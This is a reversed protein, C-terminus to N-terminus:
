LTEKHSFQWRCLQLANMPRVIWAFNILQPRGRRGSIKPWVVPLLLVSVSFNQKLSADRHFENIIIIIIIVRQLSIASKRDIKARLAEATVDLLFLKILVSLFDVVRKGILALHVDYMTGWGELPHNLFYVFHGFNSCYAAIVGCRYSIPQWNSNIVLLFDCVHKRNTVVEIVKLSRSRRSLGLKAKKWPIRNSQQVLVDCHNFISKHHGYIDDGLELRGSKAM